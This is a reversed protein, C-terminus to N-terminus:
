SVGGTTLPSVQPPADIEVLRDIDQTGCCRCQRRNWLHASMMCLSGMVTMVQEGRGGWLQTGFVLAGTLLLIGVLGLCLVGFQHHRKYGMGWAVLGLPAVSSLLGVHVWFDTPTSCCSAPRKSNEGGIAAEAECCEQESCDSSLDTTTLERSRATVREIDGDSETATLKWMPLVTLILPLAICHIMCLTSACMGLADLSLRFPKMTITREGGPHNETSCHGCTTGWFSNFTLISVGRNRKIDGIQDITRTMSVQM